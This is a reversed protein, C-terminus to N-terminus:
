SYKRSPNAAKNKKVLVREGNGYVHVPGKSTVQTRYNRGTRANGTANATTYAGGRKPKTKPNANKMLNSYAM